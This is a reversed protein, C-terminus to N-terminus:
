AAPFACGGAKKVGLTGSTMADKGRTHLGGHATRERSVPTAATKEVMREALKPHHLYASEFRQGEAQLASARGASSYGWTEGSRQM